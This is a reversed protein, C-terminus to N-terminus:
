SRASNQGAEPTLDYARLAPVTELQLRHIDGPVVTYSFAGVLAVAAIYILPGVFSGTLGFFVGIVIPTVIGALNTSFNFIGGTLGIVNKPAIDSIVTWGLNSMGQGFFALSLIAIVTANDSAPVYNAGVITAALLLGSVIPLKRALNASGTRKLLTDSLFGGFLVGVSAAIYPVSAMVGANIYSMGRESVLYTPFWTLFFVLTSNGGFQGISAGIVQRHRLLAAIQSWSFRTPEGKYEGGGGAEIHRLEADNVMRSQSPDRYIRWWLLGFVIGIGGALFFLGRWGFRATVYFLPVSFFGIGAYMGVSYISNARAREQQPFWSALIRSNAPFCPAEFTGVGIRAGVLTALSNVLGMAATCASWGVLAILYTLRTGFRDLFIGGPIQLLAYSWSFASFAVGMMAATLGLDKSLSPAAIGLVTRDLYNLMTGFAILGLVPFWRVHTRVSV